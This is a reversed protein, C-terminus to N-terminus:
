GFTLRHPIRTLVAVREIGSSGTFMIQFLEVM